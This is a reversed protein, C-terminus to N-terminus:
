ESQPRIVGSRRTSLDLTKNPLLPRITTWENDSLEYRMIGAESICFNMM